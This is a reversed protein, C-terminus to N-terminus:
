GDDVGTELATPDKPFSGQLQGCSLCFHFEVYDGGGVGMDRPVYGDHDVDTGNPGPMTVFCCDSCKGSVFAVRESKCSQCNM